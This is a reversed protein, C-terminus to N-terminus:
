DLPYRKTTPEKPREYRQGGCRESILGRKCDNVDWPEGSEKYYPGVGYDSKWNNVFADVCIRQARDREKKCGPGGSGGGGGGGGSGGGGDGGRRQWIGNWRDRASNTNPVPRTDPTDGQRRLFDPIDLGDDNNPPLTPVEATAPTADSVDGGYSFDYPTGSSDPDKPENPENGAYGDPGEEQNAVRRLERFDPDANAPSPAGQNSFPSQQPQIPPSSVYPVPGIGLGPHTELGVGSGPRSQQALPQLWRQQGIPQLLGHQLMVQQLLGGLGGMPPGGYVDSGIGYAGYDNWDPM